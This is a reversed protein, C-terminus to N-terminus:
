NKPPDSSAAPRVLDRQFGMTGENFTSFPRTTGMPGVLVAHFDYRRQFAEVVPNQLLGLPQEILSDM